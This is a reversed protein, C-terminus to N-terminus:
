AILPAVTCILKLFPYEDGTFTATAGWFVFQLGRQALSRYHNMSGPLVTCTALM